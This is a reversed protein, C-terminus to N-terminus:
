DLQLIKRKKIVHGSKMLFKRQRLGFSKLLNILSKYQPNSCSQCVKKKWFVDFSCMDLDAKLLTPKSKKKLCNTKISNGLSAVVNDQHLERSNIRLQERRGLMHNGAFAWGCCPADSTVEVQSERIRCCTSISFRTMRKMLSLKLSVNM